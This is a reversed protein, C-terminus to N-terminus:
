CNTSVSTCRKMHYMSKSKRTYWAPTVQLLVQMFPQPETLNAIVDLLVHWITFTDICKFHDVHLHWVEARSQDELICEGPPLRCWDAGSDRERKVAHECGPHDWFEDRLHHFIYELSGWPLWQICGVYLTCVNCVSLIDNAM